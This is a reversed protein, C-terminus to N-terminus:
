NAGAPRSTPRTATSTRTCSATPTASFSTTTWATPPSRPRARDVRRGAGVPAQARSHRNARSRERRRRAGPDRVRGWRPPRRLGHPARRPQPGRRGLVAARGRCRPREHRQRGQLQRPRVAGARAQPRRADGCRAGRDRAGRIRAPEPLRHAPGHAVDPHAARSPPRPEAVAVRVPRGLLCAVRRHLGRIGPGSRRLPRSWCSPSWTPRASRFSCACRISSRRM